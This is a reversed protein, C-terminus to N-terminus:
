RHFSVLGKVEDIRSRVREIFSDSRLGFGTGAITGCILNWEAGEEEEEEEVEEEFWLGAVGDMGADRLRARCVCSGASFSRGEKLVM